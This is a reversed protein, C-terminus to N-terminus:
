NVTTNSSPQSYQLPNDSSAAEQDPMTSFWYFRTYQLISNPYEQFSQRAQNDKQKAEVVADKPPARPTITITAPIPCPSVLEFGPSIANWM